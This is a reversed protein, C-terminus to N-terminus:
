FFFIPVPVLKWGTTSWGGEMSEPLGGRKETWVDSSKLAGPCHCPFRLFLVALQRLTATPANDPRRPGTERAFCVKEGRGRSSHWTGTHQLWPDPGNYM